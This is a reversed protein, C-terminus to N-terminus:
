LQLLLVPLAIGPEPVSPFDPDPGEMLSNRILNDGNRCTSIIKTFLSVTSLGAAAEMKGGRGGDRALSVEDVCSDEDVLLLPPGFWPRADSITM